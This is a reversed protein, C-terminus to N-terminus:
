TTTDDGDLLSSSHTTLDFGALPLKYKSTTKTAKQFSHVDFM